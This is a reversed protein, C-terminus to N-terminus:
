YLTKMFHLVGYCRDSLPISQFITNISFFFWYHVLMGITSIFTANFQDESFRFLISTKGVGSDGILLLKFLYDYSKAMFRRTFAFFTFSQWGSNGQLLFHVIIKFDNGIIHQHMLVCCAACVVFMKLKVLNYSKIILM